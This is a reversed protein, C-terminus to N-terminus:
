RSVQDNDKAMKQWPLYKETAERVPRRFVGDPPLYILRHGSKGLLGDLFASAAQGCDLGKVTM